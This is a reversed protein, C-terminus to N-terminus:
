PLRPQRSPPVWLKEPRGRGPRVASLVVPKQRGASGFREKKPRFGEAGLRSPQLSRLGLERCAEPETKGKEAGKGSGKEGGWAVAALNEPPSCGRCWAAFAQARGAAGRPWAPGLVLKRAGFGRSSKKKKKLGWPSFVLSSACSPQKLPCLACSVSLVPGTPPGLACLVGGFTCLGGGLRACFGWFHACFRGLHACGGGWVGVFGGWVRVFGGFLHVFAGLVRVFGGLLRVFGGWICVFGGLVRM